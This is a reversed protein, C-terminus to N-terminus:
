AYGSRAPMMPARRCGTRPHSPRYRLPTRHPRPPTPASAQKTATGAEIAALVDGKTIRGDKGTGAIRAPDLNNDDVLKRVAPSLPKAPADPAAPAAPAPAPTAAPAPTPVPAPAPAPAPEPAPAPAPAPEPTPATEAGAAGEDITGLLAGVAVDTGENVTISALAGAAPANVEVTVKDTELEVLPEDAAVADGPKKFWKAVTAETVSEGLTPVKIEIAM